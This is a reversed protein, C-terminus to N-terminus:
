LNGESVWTGPVGRVTCVWSKPQGVTPTQQIVKDGVEWQLTTPVATGYVITNQTNVTVNGKFIRISSNSFTQENNIFWTGGVSYGVSDTTTGSKFYFPVCILHRGNILTKLIAQNGAIFQVAIPTESVIEFDFVASYVGNSLSTLAGGWQSQKVGNYTASTGVYREAPAGFMNTTSTFTVNQAFGSTAATAVLQNVKDTLKLSATPYLNEADITTSTAFGDVSGKSPFSGANDEFNFDAVVSSIASWNTITNKFNIGLSDPIITNNKLVMHQPIQTIDVISIGTVSYIESNQIIFGTIDAGSYPGVSNIVTKIGEGGFRFKDIAVFGESYFWPTGSSVGVPVGVVNSVFMSSQGYVYGFIGALSAWMNQIVCSTLGCRNFVFTPNTNYVKCDYVSLQTSASLLDDYIGYDTQGLFECNVVKVMTSDVNGTQLYIASQGGSFVFGDITTQYQVKSFIPFTNTSPSIIAKDGFLYAYAPIELTLSTKYNGCPFYVKFESASGGGFASPVSSIRVSNVYDLAEQIAITDDAIGNGVAGFDKVSVIQRLKTQVTTAVAETGAQIFGVLSSGTPAALAAEFTELATLDNAGPINDYTGITVGASTKLVFKYAQGQTLWIEGVVRGASDLVIPNPNATVGTNSIYTTQPTTTGAAYTYLLGGSLPVGNNDSFQWGAGGLLSLNVTM